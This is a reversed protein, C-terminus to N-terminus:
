AEVANGDCMSCWKTGDYFVSVGTGAGAAESPKRGNSAFTMCGAKLDSTTSTTPLGAVTYVGTGLTADALVTGTTANASFVPAGAANNYIVFNGDNQFRAGSNTGYNIFFSHEGVSYTYDSDYTTGAVDSFIVSGTATNTFDGHQMNVALMNSWEGAITLNGACSVGNMSMVSTASASTVSIDQDVYINSFLVHNLTASLTINGFVVMNSFTCDELSTAPNLAFWQAGEMNWESNSVILRRITTWTADSVIGYKITEVYCNTVTILGTDSISGTTQNNFNLWNTVLVGGGQNFQCNTFAITNPGGAANGTNGGTISVYNTCALDGSGNMGFRSNSVRVEPFSDVVLHSSQIRGTNCFDMWLTIGDPDAGQVYFGDDHGYCCINRLVVGQSNVVHVGISGSPITSSAGGQRMVAVNEFRAGQWVEGGVTGIRVCDGVSEAFEFICGKTPPNSMIPGSMGYLAVNPPIIITSACYYTGPPIFIASVGSALALNIAPACDFEGDAIAGFDCISLLGGLLNELTRFVTGGTAKITLDSATGGSIAPTYLQTNEAQGDEADIKTEFQAAVKTSPLINAPNGTAMFSPWNPYSNTVAAM